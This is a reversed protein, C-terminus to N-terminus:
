ILSMRILVHIHSYVTPIIIPNISCICIADIFLLLTIALESVRCNVAARAARVAANEGTMAQHRTGVIDEVKTNM